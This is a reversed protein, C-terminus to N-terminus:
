MVLINLNRNTTCTCLLTNRELKFVMIKAYHFGKILFSLIYVKIYEILQTNILKKTLSTCYSVISVNKRRLREDTLTRARRSKTPFCHYHAISELSSFALLRRDSPTRRCLFNLFSHLIVQGLRLAFFKKFSM